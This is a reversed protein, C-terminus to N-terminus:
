RGRAANLERALRANVRARMSGPRRKTHRAYDVASFAWLKPYVSLLSFLRHNAMTPSREFPRPVHRLACGITEGDNVVEHWWWPPNYLLDGPELTVTLRPLRHIPAAPDGAHYSGYMSLCHNFPRSPLPLLYPSLAPDVLTWTKRGTVQLFFNGGPACHLNSFVNQTGVFLNSAFIHDWSSDPECLQANIQDIALEDLLDPCVTAFETSNHLYLPETHMQRVFSSFPMTKLIRKSDHPRKFAAEDMEVVTCPTDGLRASLHAGSWTKVAPSDAAFGRLVVPSRYGNSVDFFRAFDATADLEPVSVAQADFPAREWLADVLAARRRFRPARVSPQKSLLLDMCTLRNIQHAIKRSTADLEIGNM